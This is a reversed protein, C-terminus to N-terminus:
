GGRTLSEAGCLTVDGSPLTILLDGEQATSGVYSKKGPTVEHISGSSLRDGDVLRTHMEDQSVTLEIQSGRSRPVLLQAGRRAEIDWCGNAGRTVKALRTVRQVEPAAPLGFSKAGVGVKINHAVDIVAQESPRIDPLRRQVDIRALSEADIDPANGPSVMQTLVHDGRQMMQAGAVVRGKLNGIRDQQIRAERHMEASGLSILAVGMALWVVARVQWHRQLADWLLQLTLAVAPLTFLISVYLYRTQLASIIGFGGRSIALVFWNAAWGLMSAAAFKQLRKHESRVLTSALLLVAVVTGSWPVHLMRDWTNTMGRLMYPVIWEPPTPPAIGKGRGFGAYWVLYVAAPVSAVVIAPRWGRRLLTYAAVWIVAIVGAGSCMVAATGLAWLLVPRRPLADGRDVLLISVLALLNPTLFGIQFDWLVDNVGPGIFAAAALTLACVWPYAGFRRLAVWLAICIGLHLGITLAVYPLYSHMGVVHFMFRFVLIPILSWHDNHPDLLNLDGFFSVRRHLLFAWDDLLFWLSSALVFLYIGAAVIITASVVWPARPEPPVLRRWPGSLASRGRRGPDGVPHGRRAHRGALDHVRLRPSAQGEGRRPRAEARRVRLGPRQRHTLPADGKIKRWIVEALERVSTSEPTSINFDENYAAPQSMCEVIGRALDGGYTYHRVQNGEGLIHLPDQGKVIKQVLDPVVHSMALKVNGSDVEVDGLARGEGIGVCNFPRVITYPLQYQDWAAKAFYEVALKQFGYSSLPPPIKREDGEKSPWHETSEFVM